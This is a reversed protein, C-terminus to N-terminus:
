VTGGICLEQVAGVHLLGSRPSQYPMAGGVGADARGAGNLRNEVIHRRVAAVLDANLQQPGLDPPTIYLAHHHLLANVVPPLEEAGLGACVLGGHRVPDQLVDGQVHGAQVLDPVMTEHRLDMQHVLAHLPSEEVDAVLVGVERDNHRDVEVPSPIGLPALDEIPESPRVAEVPFGVAIPANKPRQPKHSVSESARHLPQLGLVEQLAATPGQVVGGRASAQIHEHYGLRQLDIALLYLLNLLADGMLRRM